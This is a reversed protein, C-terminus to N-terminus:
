NFKNTNTFTTEIKGFEVVDTDSLEYITDVDTLHKNRKM